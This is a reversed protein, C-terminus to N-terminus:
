TIQLNQRHFLMSIAVQLHSGRTLDREPVDFYQINRQNQLCDHRILLITMKKYFKFFERARRLRAM